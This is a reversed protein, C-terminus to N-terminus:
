HWNQPPPPRDEMSRSCGKGRWNQTTRISDRVHDAVSLLILAFARDKRSAYLAKEKASGPEEEGVVVRWLDAAMLYLKMKEAWNQFKYQNGDFVEVVQVRGTESSSSWVSEMTSRATTKRNSLFPTVRM